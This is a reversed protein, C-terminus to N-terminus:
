CGGRRGRGGAGRGCHRRDRGCPPIDAGDAELPEPADPGAGALAWDGGEIRLAWGNALARAVVARAQGLIRNLTPRSVGMRSAAEEQDLGEADVLRLAELGEVPLVAGTLSRLPAGAPKYMAFAPSGSVLRCKKPRGM